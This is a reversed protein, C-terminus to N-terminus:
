AAPLAVFSALRERMAASDVGDSRGDGPAEVDALDWAGEGTPRVFLHTKESGDLAFGTLETGFYVTGLPHRVANGTIITELLDADAVDPAKVVMSWTSLAAPQLFVSLEPSQLYLAAEIGDENVLGIETWREATQLIAILLRIAGRPQLADGELILEGRALLSSAGLAAIQETIFGPAIQLAREARQRAVGSSLSVAYAVEAAGFAPTDAPSVAKEFTIWSRTDTM